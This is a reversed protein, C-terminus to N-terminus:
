PIECLLTQFFETLESFDGPLWTRSNERAAVHHARTGTPPGRAASAEDDSMTRPVGPLDIGAGSCTVVFASRLDLGPRTRPIRRLDLSSYTNVLSGQYELRADPPRTHLHHAATVTCPHPPTRNSGSPRAMRLTCGHFCSHATKARGTIRVFRRTRPSTHMCRDLLRADSHIRTRLIPFHM